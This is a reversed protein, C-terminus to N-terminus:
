VLSGTCLEALPYVAIMALMVLHQVVRLTQGSKGVIRCDSSGLPDIRDSCNAGVVLCNLSMGKIATSVVRALRHLRLRLPTGNRIICDLAHINLLALREFVGLEHVSSAHFLRIGEVDGFLLLVPVVAHNVAGDVAAAVAAM